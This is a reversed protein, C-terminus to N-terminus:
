IQNGVFAQRVCIELKMISYSDFGYDVKANLVCNLIYDEDFNCVIDGCLLFSFAKLNPFMSTCFFSKRMDNGYKFTALFDYSVLTCIDIWWGCILPFIGVEVVM